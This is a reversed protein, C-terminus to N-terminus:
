LGLVGPKPAQITLKACREIGDSGRTKKAQRFGAAMLKSEDAGIGYSLPGPLLVEFESLCLWNAMDRRIVSERPLNEYFYHFVVTILNIHNGKFDSGHWCWAAYAYIGAIVQTDKPQKEYALKFEFWLNLWLEGPADSTEIMERYQPLQTIAEHRWKSM